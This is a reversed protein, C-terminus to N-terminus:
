RAIDAVTLSNPRRFYSASQQAIFKCNEACKRCMAATAMMTEDDNRLECAMAARDCMEACLECTRGAFESGDMIMNVCMMCMEACDRLMCMVTMDIYNNGKTKCYNLTETCTTQCEICVQKCAEMSVLMSETVMM